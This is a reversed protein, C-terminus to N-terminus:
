PRHCRGGPPTATRPRVARRPNSRRRRRWRPTRSRPAAGGARRRSPTPDTRAGAAAGAAAADSVRRRAAAAGRRTTAASTRREDPAREPDALGEEEHGASAAILSRAGSSRRPSAILTPDSARYPPSAIPGTTPSVIRPSPPYSATQIADAAIATPRSPGTGAPGPSTASSGRAAHRGRTRAARSMWGAPRKGPNRIRVPAQPIAPNRANM